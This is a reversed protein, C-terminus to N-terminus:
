PRSLLLLINKLFCHCICNQTKLGDLVVLIVMMMMHRSCFINKFLLLSNPWNFGGDDDGTRCGDHHSLLFFDKLFSM